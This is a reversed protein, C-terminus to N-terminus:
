TMISTNIPIGIAALNMCSRKYYLLFSLGNCELHTQNGPIFINGNVLDKFFETLWNTFGKRM